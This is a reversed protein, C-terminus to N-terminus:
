ICKVFRAARWCDSHLVSRPLTSRMRSASRWHKTRSALTGDHKRGASTPRNPRPQGGEMEISPSHQAAQDVSRRERRIPYEAEDAATGLLEVCEFCPLHPQDPSSSRIRWM